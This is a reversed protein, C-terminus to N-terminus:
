LYQNALVKLMLRVRDLHFALTTAIFAAWLVTIWARHTGKVCWAILSLAPAITIVAILPYFQPKRSAAWFLDALPLDPPTKAPVITFVLLVTAQIAAIIWTMQMAASRSVALAKRKARQTLANQKRRKEAGRATLTISM